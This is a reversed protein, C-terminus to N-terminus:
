PLRMAGKLIRSDPCFRLKLWISGAIGNLSPQSNDM